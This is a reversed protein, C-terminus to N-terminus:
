KIFFGLELHQNVFAITDAYITNYFDQRVQVDLGSITESVQSYVADAEEKVGNHEISIVCGRAYKRVDYAFDIKSQAQWTIYQKQKMFFAKKFMQDVIQFSANGKDAYLKNFWTSIKCTSDKLKMISDPLMVVGNSTTYDTSASVSVTSSLVSM